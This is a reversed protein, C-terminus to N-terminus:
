SQHHGRWVELLMCQRWLMGSVTESGEDGWQHASADLSADFEASVEAAEPSNKAQELEEQCDDLFEALAERQKDLQKLRRKVSRVLHEKQLVANAVPSQM